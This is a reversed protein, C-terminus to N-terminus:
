VKPTDSFQIENQFQVKPTDPFIIEIQFKVKPTDPFPIEIQFEIKLTDPFPIEIQFKAKLYHPFLIEIQFLVKVYYSFLIEVYYAHKKLLFAMLLGLFRGTAQVSIVEEGGGAIMRIGLSGCRAGFRMGCRRFLHVINRITMRIIRRSSAFGSLAFLRPNKFGHFFQYSLFHRRCLRPVAVIKLMSRIDNSPDM